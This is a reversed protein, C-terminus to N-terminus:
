DKNRQFSYVLRLDIFDAVHKHAQLNFGVGWYKNFRYQFGWRHYITTFYDTSNIIYIGIRQSFIFKGLLFEHGILIGSRVASSSTNTSHIAGPSLGQGPSLSQGPSAIVNITDHEIKYKLADDYFLELGATLAHIAGVQKSAQASLGILPLRKSDGNEDRIRKAIGFVGVDWRPGDNRWFKEKQKIGSYFKREEKQYSVAIGVTPWNIGKNPQRFGGNSIHQYNVSGNLWLHGNIKYWIGGGVLLYGSLKTSYSQNGPNHVSDFPNSLYSLGASVEFSLQLKKSIRFLPELFFAATLASGLIETDYNYYNILLGQRPYCNCLNWIAPDNRQWSFILEAGTPRAGKTNQVGPSHAFIFGHQLGAGISFIPKLKLIFTSDEQCYIKRDYFIFILLLLHWHLKRCGMMHLKLPLL